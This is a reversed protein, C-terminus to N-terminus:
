IDEVTGDKPMPYMQLVSERILDSVTIDEDREFAEHRAVRKLHAVIARNFRISIPMDLTEPM